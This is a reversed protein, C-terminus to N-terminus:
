KGLTKLRIDKFEIKMPAGAHIQLAVIGFNYRQDEQEDTFDVVTVGNLLHVIHNGKVVVAGENWDGKKEAAALADKEATAGTVEKKGDKWVVKEGGMAIRGRKGREDYLKGMHEPGTNIDYQYGGAVWKGFDKSRYQVGSNNASTLRFRFRLEFDTVTVDKRILFTNGKAPNEKTTEGVIAGDKVSWLRPDGDWGDLSKGDFLASFGDKDPKPLPPADAARAEGALLAAAAFALASARLPNM